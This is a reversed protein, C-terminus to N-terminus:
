QCKRKMHLVQMLCRLLFGNHGSYFDPDTTNAIDWDYIASIDDIQKKITLMKKTSAKPHVGNKNCLKRSTIWFCGM